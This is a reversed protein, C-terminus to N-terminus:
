LLYIYFTGQLGLQWADSIPDSGHSEVWFLPFGFSASIDAIPGSDGPITGGAFFGLPVIPVPHDLAFAIGSSAGLFFYEGLNFSLSVPVAFSSLIPDQFTFSFQPVLDIRGVGGLHALIPIGARLVSSSGSRLPLSAEVRLGMEIVDSLFRVTGRLTPNLYEVSPTFTVPALVAGLELFETVGYDMAVTGGLSDHADGGASAPYASLSLGARPSLIGRALVLPRDVFAYPYRVPPPQDSYGTTTLTEVPRTRETVVRALDMDRVRWFFQGGDLDVRIGPCGVDDLGSLETVTAIQGIFPEMAPNWNADGRWPRHRDLVVLGGVVVPGYYPVAQDCDPMASRSGAIVVVEQAHAHGAAVLVLAIAALSARV